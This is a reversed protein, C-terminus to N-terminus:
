YNCLFRIFVCETKQLGNKVNLLYFTCSATRPHYGSMLTRVDSARVTVQNEFIFLGIM